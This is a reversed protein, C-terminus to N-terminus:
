APITDDHQGMGVHLPSPTHGKSQRNGGKAEAQQENRRGEGRRIRARVAVLAQGTLAMTRVRARGVGVTGAHLRAQLGQFLREFEARYLRVRPRRERPRQLRLRRLHADLMLGALLVIGRRVPHGSLDGAHLSAQLAHLRNVRGALLQEIGQARLLLLGKLLMEGGRTAM